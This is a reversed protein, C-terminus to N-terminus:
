AEVTLYKVKIRHISMDSVGYEAALAKLTEGQDIRTAIHKALPISIRSRGRKNSKLHAEESLSSSNSWYLNDRHPTLTNKKNFFGVKKLVDPMPNHVYALAVLLHVYTTRGNISVVYYGTRGKDNSTISQNLLNGDLAVVSGDESVTINADRYTITKM